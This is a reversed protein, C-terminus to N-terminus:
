YFVIQKNLLKTRLRTSSEFPEGLTNVSEVSGEAFITGGIFNVNPLIYVNGKDAKTGKLAIIGINKKDPNFTGSFTINGEQVILTKWSPDGTLTMDGKVYAVGNVITPADATGASRNRTLEAVNKAVLTRAGVWSNEGVKTTDSVIGWKGQSQDYGGIFIANLEGGSLTLPDFSGVDKGVYHGVERNQLIYQIKPTAEFKPSETIRKLLEAVFTVSTPIRLSQAQVPNISLRSGGAPSLETGTYTMPQGEVTWEESKKTHLYDIYNITINQLSVSKKNQDRSLIFDLLQNQGFVVETDEDGYDM